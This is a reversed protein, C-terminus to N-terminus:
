PATCPNACIVIGPGAVVCITNAPCSAPCSGAFPPPLPLAACAASATLPPALCICTGPVAACSLGSTTCTQCIGSTCIASACDPRGLCGQGVGCKNPCTGGCDVGTESGNKRDDTCSAVCRGSQCLGTSCALGNAKAKCKGKKCVKGHKTKHCSGKKCTECEDCKPKCTGAAAAADPRVLGVVTLGGLVQALARRRSGASALSRALTDFRIDDM